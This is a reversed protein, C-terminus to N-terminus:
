EIENDLIDSVFDLIEEKNWGNQTMGFVVMPLVVEEFQVCEFQGYFKEMLKFYKGKKGYLFEQTNPYEANYVTMFAEADLEAEVDSGVDSFDFLEENTAKLVNM